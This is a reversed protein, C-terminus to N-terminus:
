QFTKGLMVVYVAITENYMHIYVVSYGNGNSIPNNEKLAKWQQRWQDWTSQKVAVIGKAERPSTVHNDFSWSM